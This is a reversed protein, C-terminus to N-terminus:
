AKSDPLHPNLVGAPIHSGRSCFETEPKWSYASRRHRAYLLCEIFTQQIFHIAM